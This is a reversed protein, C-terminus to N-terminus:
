FRVGLWLSNSNHCQLIPRVSMFHIWHDQRGRSKTELSLSSVNSGETSRSELLEFSIQDYEQEFQVTHIIPLTLRLLILLTPVCEVIFSFCYSRSRPSSIKTSLYSDLIVPISMLLLPFYFLIFLRYTTSNKDIHRGFKNILDWVYWQISIINKM